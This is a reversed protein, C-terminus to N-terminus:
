LWPWREISTSGRLHSPKIATAHEVVLLGQDLWDEMVCSFFRGEIVKLHCVESKGNLPDVPELGLSEPARRLDDADLPDGPFPTRPATAMCCSVRGFNRVAETTVWSRILQLGAVSYGCSCIAILLCVAM